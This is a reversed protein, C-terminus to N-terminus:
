GCGLPPHRGDAYTRRCLHQPSPTGPGDDSIQDQDVEASGIGVGLVNNAGQYAEASALIGNEPGPQAFLATEVEKHLELLEPTASTPSADDVDSGADDDPDDIEMDDDSLMEDDAAGEVTEPDEIQPTGSKRRDKSAM